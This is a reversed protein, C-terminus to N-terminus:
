SPRRVMAEVVLCWPHPKKQPENGPAKPGILEFGEWRAGDVTRNKEIPNGGGLNTIRVTDPSGSNAVVVRVAVHAPKGSRWFGQLARTHDLNRSFVTVIFPPLNPAVRRAIEFRGGEMPAVDLIAEDGSALGRQHAVEGYVCYRDGEHSRPATFTDVLDAVGFVELVGLPTDMPPEREEREAFRLMDLSSRPLLEDALRRPGPRRRKKEVLLDEWNVLLHPALKKLTRSRTRTRKGNELDSITEPDVRSLAALERQSLDRAERLERLKAPDPTWLAAPM